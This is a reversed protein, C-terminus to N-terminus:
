AEQMKEEIFDYLSQFTTIRQLHRPQIIIGCNRKVVIIIQLARMSDLHLTEWVDADPTITVEEMDLELALDQNIQSILDSQLM